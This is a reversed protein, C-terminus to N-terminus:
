KEDLTRIVRAPNGAVIVNAPIDKTVVSCAAVISNEGIESVQHLITARAGIWVNDYIKLPLPIPKSRPNLGHNHTQIMVDESITCNKGITLDGTYDISCGKSIQTKDGITFISTSIESSIMVERGIHVQNGLLLNKPFRITTQCQITNDKGSKSDLNKTQVLTSIKDKISLYFSPIIQYIAGFIGNFQNNWFKM